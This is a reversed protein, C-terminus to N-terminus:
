MHSLIRGTVWDIRTVKNPHRLSSWAVSWMGRLFAGFGAVRPVATTSTEHPGRDVVGREIIERAHRVAEQFRRASDILHVNANAITLANLIAPATAVFAQFGVKLEAYVADEWEYKGESVAIRYSEDAKILIEYVATAHTLWYETVIVAEVPDFEIRWPERLREAESRAIEILAPKM